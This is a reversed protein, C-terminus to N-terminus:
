RRSRRGTVDRIICSTSTVIRRGEFIMDELERHEQMQHVADGLIVNLAEAFDVHHANAIDNVKKAVDDPLRCGSCSSTKCCEGIIM